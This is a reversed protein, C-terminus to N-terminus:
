STPRPTEALVREATTRDSTPDNTEAAPPGSESVANLVGAPAYEYAGIDPARGQPIVNGDYDRTLGVDAGNDICVSDPRLHFDHSVPDTLHAGAIAMMGDGSMDTTTSKQFANFAVTTQALAQQGATQDRIATWRAHHPWFLNNRIFNVGSFNDTASSKWRVGFENNYFTNNDISINRTQAVVPAAWFSIAGSNGWFLNNHIRVRDNHYANTELGFEIGANYTCDYIRNYRIVIDSAGEMYLNILDNSYLDCDEIVGNRAGRKFNVGEMYNDYVRTRRIVFGDVNEMTLGEHYTAVGPAGEKYGGNNHHIVCDEVTIQSTGAGSVTPAVLGGDLSHSVECGRVTVHAAVPKIYLGFSASQTVEIDQVIVHEHNRIHLLGDTRVRPRVSAEIVPFGAGGGPEGEVRVTLVGGAWAWELPGDLHNLGTRRVGRVGDFFVQNPAAALVARWCNPPGAAGKLVPRGGTGYAGFVVPRQATGSVPVILQERWIQDRKLLIRDGPRFGAYSNVKGVTRWATAENRGTNRDNGGAADVYYDAALCPVQFLLCCLPFARIACRPIM